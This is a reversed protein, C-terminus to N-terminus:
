GRRTRGRVLAVVLAAVAAALAGASLWLAATTAADSESASDSAAHEHSEDSDSSEAAAHGHGDEETFDGVSVVPAPTDLADADEGEAAVQGWVTEGEACQQTVPFAVDSNAAAEGFTVAMSATAKLGDEVPTLATFTVQTAIGDDGLVRDISWAGDVIPTVTAVADPIDIVLATTPSGDCGHSFSFTLTESSGAGAESPDVHVHASAALPVGLALALGTAVGAAALTRRRVPTSSATNM